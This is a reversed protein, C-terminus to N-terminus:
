RFTQPFPDDDMPYYGDSGGEYADGKEGGDKKRDAFYTEDAVVETIYHRRGEMDDWKRTQLKGVVAVQMGKNFYEHCFTATKDWAVIQIFDAKQETTGRRNVELTFSCVATNNQSTFRIEPDKTLRGILIVKNM